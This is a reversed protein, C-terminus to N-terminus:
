LYKETLVQTKEAKVEEGREMKAVKARYQDEWPGENGGRLDEMWEMRRAMREMDRLNYYNHGGLPYPRIRDKEEDEEGLVHFLCFESESSPTHYLRGQMLYLPDPAFHRFGFSKPPLSPVGDNYAKVSYEKLSEKGNKTRYNNVLERWLQSMQANGCRPSGFVALKLPLGLPLELDSPALLDIALLYSLAGGLSHGTVVLESVEHDHLGKEIASIVEPEIGQYMKWFGTHVACGRGIPHEHKSTRLDQLAQGVNSTGSISVVLQKTCPRYAVYAGLDAVKGRIASVLVSGKLADYGELPYDVKTLLNLNKFIFETPFSSHATEAFQGLESLEFSIDASAVDTHSLTHPSYTAMVRSIWRFNM